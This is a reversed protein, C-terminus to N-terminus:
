NLPADIDNPNYVQKPNPAPEGKIGQRGAGGLFGEMQGVFPIAIAVIGLILYLVPTTLPVLKPNRRHIQFQTFAAAILAVGVIICVAWMLKSLVDGGTLLTGVVDSLTRGDDATAIGSVLLGLVVSFIRM